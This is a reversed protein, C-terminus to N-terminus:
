WYPNTAEALKEIDIPELQMQQCLQKPTLVPVHSVPIKRKQNTVNCFKRDMTLFADLKAEEATWLHYADDIHKEGVANTIQLFRSDRISQFFEMQEEETVGISMFGGFIITRVLPSRVSRIPVGRLLDIGMYGDDPGKQRIGEMRLEDSTYFELKGLKAANCIAALYPLQESRFIEDNRPPFPDRQAVELIQERPGWKIKQPVLVTKHTISNREISRDILVKM